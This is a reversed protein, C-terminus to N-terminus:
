ANKPAGKMINITKNLDDVGIKGTIEPKWRHRKASIQVETWVYKIKCATCYM